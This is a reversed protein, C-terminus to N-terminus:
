RSASELAEAASACARWGARWAPVELRALIAECRARDESTDVSLQMEPKPDEAQFSVIKLRDANAYFYPTVHEREDPRTMARMAHDLAQTRLVEVSQGKPFSRPFVNSVLDAEPNARMLDAGRDILAPDMLPSDGNVRVLADAAFSRAAELMRGAVDDLSGRYCGIGEAKVFDALPDDSSLASTALVVADISRAHRLAEIVHGLMPKGALPHLAKGPLRRSDFRAQVIAVIRM